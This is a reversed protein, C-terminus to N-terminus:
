TNNYKLSFLNCWQMQRCKGTYGSLFSKTIQPKVDIMSESDTSPTQLCSAYQSSPPTLAYGEAVQSLDAGPPWTDDMPWVAGSIHLQNHTSPIPPSPYPSMSFYSHEPHDLETVFSGTFVVVYNMYHQKRYYRTTCLLM